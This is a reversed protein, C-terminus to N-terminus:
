KCIMDGEYKTYKDRFLQEVSQFGEKHYRYSVAAFTLNPKYMEYWETLTKTEGNISINMNDRRNNGQIKRTAWRCNDPEYNGNVDIRDITLDDQYGNSIAWDYFSIFDNSWEECVKIGRGGYNHYNTDNINNCRKKIQQWINYIRTRSLSHKTCREIDRKTVIERNLCGCSRVHNNILNGSRVSIEEGCECKCKWFPKGYKLYKENDFEIVTLRGFKKGTLDIRNRPM